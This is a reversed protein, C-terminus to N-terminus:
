APAARSASASTAAPWTPAAAAAAAATSWCLFSALRWSGSWQAATPRAGAGGTVRRISVNPTSLTCRLTWGIRAATSSPRARRTLLSNASHGM